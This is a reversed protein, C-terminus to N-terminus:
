KMEYTKHIKWTGATKTGSVLKLITINDFWCNFSKEKGKVFNLVDNYKDDCEEALTTHFQLKEADYQDWTLWTLTKLEVIFDLFTQKADKSPNINIFVVKKPFGAFGAVHIPTKKHSKCFKACVNELETINETEFSYKLTFHTKLNEKKTLNLNFKDAIQNVLTHHYKEIDGRLLCHLM